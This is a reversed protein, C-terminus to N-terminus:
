LIDVLSLGRAAARATDWEHHNAPVPKIEDDPRRQLSLAQDTCNLTCLGCGVCRQRNVGMIGEDTLALANFQCADLCAECSSCTDADVQAVYASRAASNALGMESVSRLIGCSCTCCNCIYSVDERYNGTTHVLGAEAAEHLLDLAEDQTLARVSDAADFAGPTQSFIMCMELPHECPDGILAKQKRCICPIVGWAQAQAVIGHASEYPHIEIDPTVSANIPIVRHLQPEVANLHMFARQYYDEFLQALEADITEMQYEYIGVVFPLLGYALGDDTRDVAILGRKTMAKLQKRLTRADGGIREALQDPTEKTMRLQATLVAEEPTYLKELLRLEAGDETAPFGNPLADLRAALQQYPTQSM